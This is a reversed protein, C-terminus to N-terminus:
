RPRGSEGSRRLRVPLEKLMLEMRAIETSQDVQADSAFKFVLENQGAGDTAFLDHVMTVAGRHHQIMYILFLRDFETGQARDLEQMQEPSLMGPMMQMAEGIGHIEMGHPLLEVEPVPLGRDGLWGQMTVIEDKQAAIIRSTLIGVSPSAGHSPAWGAMVLAQAHHSIMGTMFRVDAETYRDRASDKRAQYIAELEATESAATPSPTTEGAESPHSCAAGMLTAALFAGAWFSRIPNM